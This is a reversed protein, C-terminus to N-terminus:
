DDLSDIQRGRYNHRDRDIEAFIADIEADNQWVGLVQKIRNQRKEKSLHALPYFPLLSIEEMIEEEFDHPAVFKKQTLKIQRLEIMERNRQIIFKNRRIENEIKKATPILSALGAFIFLIGILCVILLLLFIKQQISIASSYLFAISLLGILVFIVFSLFIWYIHAIKEYINPNRIILIDNDDIKLLAFVRKFDSYRLRGRTLRYYDVIQKQMYINNIKIGTRRQYAILNIKEKLAIKAEESINEDALLEKLNTLEKKSFRNIFDYIINAQSLAYILSAILLFLFVIELPADEPILDIVSSLFTEM